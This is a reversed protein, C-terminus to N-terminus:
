ASPAEAAIKQPDVGLARLHAEADAIVMDRFSSPPDNRYEALFAMWADADFLDPEARMFFDAM